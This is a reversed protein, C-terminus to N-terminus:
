NNADRTKEEREGIGKQTGTSTWTYSFLFPHLSYPLSLLFISPSLRLPFFLCIRSFGNRTCYRRRGCSPPMLMAASPREGAQGKLHGEKWGRPAQTHQTGAQSEFSQGADARDASNYHLRVGSGDLTERNKKRSFFSLFFFFGLLLKITWLVQYDNEPPSFKRVRVAEAGGPAATQPCAKCTILWPAPHEWPWAPATLQRSAPFWRLAILM